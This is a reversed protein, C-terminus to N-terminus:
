LPEFDFRQGGISAEYMLGAEDMTFVLVGNKYKANGTVGSRWAVASAQAAFALESAKFRDLAAKNEFFIIESYAQGGLQLGISGQTIDCYGIMKNKDFVQGRGWAGGLGAAGKTVNPFVAYGEASTFLPALSADNKKFHAITNQVDSSLEKKDADTTPTTACGTAFTIAALLAVALLSKTM